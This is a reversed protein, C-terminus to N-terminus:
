PAYQMHLAANVLLVVTFHDILILAAPWWFTIEGLRAVIIYYVRNWVREGRETTFNHFILHPYQESMTGLNPIDHRMVTNFLTYYATPGHPLHSIVLGDVTYWLCWGCSFVCFVSRVIVAVHGVLSAWSYRSLKNDPYWFIQWYPQENEEHVKEHLKEFNIIQNSKLGM